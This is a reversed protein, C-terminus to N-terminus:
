LRWAEDAEIHLGMPSHSVAAHLHETFWLRALELAEARVLVLEAPLAERPELGLQLGSVGLTQARAYLSQLATAEPRTGHAVASMLAELAPPYLDAPDVSFWLRDETARDESTVYELVNRM